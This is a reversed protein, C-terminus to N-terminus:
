EGATEEKSSNDTQGNNIGKKLDAKLEAIEAALDNVAAQDNWKGKCKMYFIQATVNQNAVNELLKSAVFEVGKASGRKIANAFEAYLNKKEFLTTTCIGLADAIQQQTLGKAAYDEVKELVEQTIEFPPRAMTM